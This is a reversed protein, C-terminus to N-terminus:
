VNKTKPTVPEKRISAMSEIRQHQFDSRFTIPDIFKLNRKTKSIGTKATSTSPRALDMSENNNNSTNQHAKDATCGLDLDFEDEDFKPKVNRRPRGRPRTSSQAANAKETVKKKGVM